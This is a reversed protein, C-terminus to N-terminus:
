VKEARRTPTQFPAQTDFLGRADRRSSILTQPASGMLIQLLPDGVGCHLWATTPHPAGGCFELGERQGVFLNQADGWTWGESTTTPAQMM